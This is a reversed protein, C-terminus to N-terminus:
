LRLEVIERLEDGLEAAGGTKDEECRKQDPEEDLESRVVRLPCRTLPSDREDLNEDDRDCQDNHGHWFTQLRVHVTHKHLQASMRAEIPKGSATVSARANAVFRMVLSFRRTRTRPEQSVIAFALTTQVSLVPVSVCFEIVTTAPDTPM